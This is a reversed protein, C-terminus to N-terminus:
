MHWHCLRRLRTTAGHSNNNRILRGHELNHLNIKTIDFLVQDIKREIGQVVNFHVYDIYNAEFFDETKRKYWRRMKKNMLILGQLAIARNELMIMSAESLPLSKLYFQCSHIFAATEKYLQVSEPGTRM